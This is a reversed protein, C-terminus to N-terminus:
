DIQSEEHFVAKTDPDMDTNNLEVATRGKQPSNVSVHQNSFTSTTTTSFTYHTEYRDNLTTSKNNTKLELPDSPGDIVMRSIAMSMAIFQRDRKILNISAAKFNKSASCYILFKCSANVTLLLSNLSNVYSFWIPVASLGTQLNLIVVNNFM